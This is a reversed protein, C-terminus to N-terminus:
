RLFVWGSMGCVDRSCRKLSQLCLMLSFFDRNQLVSMCPSVLLLARATTPALRLSSPHSATGLCPFLESTRLGKFDLLSHHQGPLPSCRCLGRPSQFSLGSALPFPELTPPATSPSAQQGQFSLAQYSLGVIVPSPFGPCSSRLESVTGAKRLSIRGPFCMCFSQMGIRMINVVVMFILLGMWHGHHGKTTPVPIDCMVCPVSPIDYVMYVMSCSTTGLSQLSSGPIIPKTPTEEPDTATM